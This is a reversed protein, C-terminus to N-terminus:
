HVDIGLDYRLMEFVKKYMFAFMEVSAKNLFVRVIPLVLIPNSKIGISNPVM